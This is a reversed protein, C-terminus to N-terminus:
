YYLYTDLKDLFGVMTPCVIYITARIQCMSSLTSKCLPRAGLFKPDFCGEISWKKSKLISRRKLYPKDKHLSHTRSNPSVINTLFITGSKHRKLTENKLKSGLTFMKSYNYEGKIPNSSEKKTIKTEIRSQVKQSEWISYFQGKSTLLQSLFWVYSSKCFRPNKSFWVESLLVIWICYRTTKRQKM